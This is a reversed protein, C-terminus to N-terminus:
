NQKACQLCRGRVLEGRANCFRCCFPKETEPEIPVLVGDPDTGRMPIAQVQDRNFKAAHAPDRTWTPFGTTPDNAGMFEGGATILVTM